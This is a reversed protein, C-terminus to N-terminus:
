FPPIPNIKMIRDAASLDKFVLFYVEMQGLIDNRDEVIDSITGFTQNGEGGRSPAATEIDNASWTIGNKHQFDGPNKQTGRAGPPRLDSSFTKGDRKYSKVRWAKITVKAYQTKLDNSIGLNTTSDVVIMNKGDQYRRLSTNLQRGPQDGATIYLGEVITQGNSAISYGYGAAAWCSIVFEIVTQKMCILARGGTIYPSAEGTLPNKVGEVMVPQYKIATNAVKADEDTTNKNVAVQLHNSLFWPAQTGTFMPVKEQTDILTVKNSQNGDTVMKITWYQEDGQQVQRPQPVPMQVVMFRFSSPMFDGLRSRAISLTDTPQFNLTKEKGDLKFFTVNM